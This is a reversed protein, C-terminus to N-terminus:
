AHALAILGRRVEKEDFHGTAAVLSHKRLALQKVCVDKLMSLILVFDRALARLLSLSVVVSMIIFSRIGVQNSHLAPKRFSRKEGGLVLVLLKRFSRLVLLSSSTNYTRYRLLVAYGRM